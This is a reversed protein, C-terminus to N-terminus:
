HPVVPGGPHIPLNPDMPVTHNIENKVDALFSNVDQNDHEHLRKNARPPFQVKGGDIKAKGSWVGIICYRPVGATNTTDRRTDAMLFLVYREGQRVPPDDPVSIDWKGAKGGIQTLQITDTGPPTGGLVSDVSIVSRTEASPIDPDPETSVAPLVSFVTGDVILQSAAVLQSLNGVENSPDLEMAVKGNPLHFPKHTTRRPSSGPAPGSSPPAQAIAVCIVALLGVTMKSATM